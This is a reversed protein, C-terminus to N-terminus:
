VLRVDCRNVRTQLRSASPGFFATLGFQPIVMVMVAVMFVRGDGYVMVMIMVMVMSPGDLM